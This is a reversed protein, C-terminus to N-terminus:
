RFINRSDFARSMFAVALVEAHFRDFDHGKPGRIPGAAVFGLHGGSEPLAFEVRSLAFAQAKLYSRAPVLPDDLASVLLTPVRISGLHPAASAEAYYQAASAFGFHPATIREDFERVSRIRDLGNRSFRGPWVASIKRVHRTLGSVFHAAYRRNVFDRELAASCEALDIPASVAVVSRVAAPGDEGWEAALKTVVNGGLSFGVLGIPLDPRESSMAAVVKAVDNTLGSHYLSPALAETGGAGRFNMRVTAIGLSLAKDATGRMYSSDASGTLGHCLVVFGRVPGLSRPPEDCWVEVACEETVAIRRRNPERALHRTRRPWYAAALTMRHPGSLLPHPTFSPLEVAVFM